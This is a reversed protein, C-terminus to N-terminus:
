VKIVPIVRSPVNQISFPRILCASLISPEVVGAQARQAPDDRHSSRLSARGGLGARAEERRQDHAIPVEHVHGVEPAFRDVGGLFGTFCRYGAPKTQYQQGQNM